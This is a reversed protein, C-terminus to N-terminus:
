PVSLPGQAWRLPPHSGAPPALLRIPSKCAAETRRSVYEGDIWRRDRWSGYKDGRSVSGRGGCRTTADPWAHPAETGSCQNLFDGTQRKDRGRPLASGIRAATRKKQVWSGVGLSYSRDVWAGTDYDLSNNRAASIFLRAVAPPPESKSRAATRRKRVLLEACLEYSEHAQAGM